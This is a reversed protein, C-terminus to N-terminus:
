RTEEHGAVASPIKRVTDTAQPVGTITKIEKRGTLALIAAITAWVAAVILASWGHGTQDGIGWWAAISLFLLTMHGALGAGAFMGAGKGARSASQRLEAKALDVEQRLLTTLDSSIDTLVDGISASARDGRPSAHDDHPASV